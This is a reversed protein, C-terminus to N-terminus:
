KQWNEAQNEDSGSKRKKKMKKWIHCFVTVFIVTEGLKVVNELTNVRSTLHAIAKDHNDLCRCFQEYDGNFTDVLKNHNYIVEDRLRNHNNAVENRLDEIRQDAKVFLEAATIEKNEM